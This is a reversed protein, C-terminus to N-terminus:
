SGFPASVDHLGENDLSVAATLFQGCQEGIPFSSVPEFELTHVALATGASNTGSVTVTMRSDTLVGLDLFGVKSGDPSSTASCANKSDCGLDISVSGPMLDLDSEHCIGDQCARIHLSEVQTVYSAAVTLSVGSSQGLDPCAVDAPGCAAALVATTCLVVLVGFRRM